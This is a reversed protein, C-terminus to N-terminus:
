KLQEQECLCGHKEPSADCIALDGWDPCFHFGPVKGMDEALPPEGSIDANELISWQEKTM